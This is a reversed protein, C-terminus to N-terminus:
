RRRSLTAAPQQMRPETVPQVTLEPPPLEIVHDALGDYRDSTTLLIIQHEAAIDKLLALARQAREDDFTVFPDDLVLPPTQPQTIQRVIGLRACLYLQDLTGQSLHQEDVWDDMEPSFVEFSLKGEDVRLDHYRGATIRAIDASMSQELYRAAKKMTAQEAANLASLAEEYVRLRREAATLREEADALAEVDAAVQEADVQNAELRAAAQAEATVAEEREATLRSIASKAAAQQKDPEAGIEGMGALAHRCEDAEAAAHDRLSPLDDNISGAGLVGRLEAELREIRAVQEGEAALLNEAEALDPLGMRDLLEGRERERARTQEALQNRTSLRRAVEKERLENQLRIVRAGSRRFLAVALLLVALGGLAAAFVLSGTVFLLGAAVALLAALLALPRWRPIPLAEEYSSLDLEAALEARLEMLEFQLDRLKAVLGRLEGLPVPSPHSAELSRMEQQIEAARRYVEYRKAADAQRSMLALARDAAELSARQKGLEGELHQRRDRAEALARRDHELRELAQEGQAVAARLRDVELHASKLYGPNKPGAAKYRQIADALKRRAAYTGVDAGSMSRQLRDRLTAEDQELGILEHHHISATARFFKETPLGTLEAIRLEVAAPDTLVEGDDLRLEVVGRSGGFSKTLRGSAAPDTFSISVGPVNEPEGWTRVGDLEQATSNARRFLVMELARQITTKGAENPGRIVTLGPDLELDLAAHRKVNRLQLNRIHM